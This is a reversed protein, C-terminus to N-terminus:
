IRYKGKRIKEVARYEDVYKSIFNSASSLTDGNFKIDLTDEIEEIFRKQKMTPTLNKKRHLKIQKHIDKYESIFKGATKESNEGDYEIGLNKCIDQVYEKQLNSMGAM